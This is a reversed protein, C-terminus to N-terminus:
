VKAYQYYTTGIYSLRSFVKQLAGYWTNCICVGLLMNWYCRIDNPRGTCGSTDVVVVTDSMILCIQVNWTVPMGSITIFGDEQLFGICNCINNYGSYINSIEIYKCVRKKSSSLTQFRWDYCIRYLTAHFKTDMVLSCLSWPQFIPILIYNCVM